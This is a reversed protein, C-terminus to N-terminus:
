LSKSTITLKVSFTNSEKLIEFTHKNQYVLNLRQKANKIGIGFGEETQHVKFDENYSNVCTFHITNEDCIIAITLESKKSPDIGYKFANEVFPILLGPSIIQDTVGKFTTTITPEVACRLKQIIIYDQLYNIENKLPIFDKHIDNQMYRLLNALKATSEATKTANESLATAYLTNLTNFLFHPNVQSKLLQLESEKVDLQIHFLRNNAKVKVRIYGYTFSLLMTILFFVILTIFNASLEKVRIFHSGYIVMTSYTILIFSTINFLLYKLINRKKIILPIFIFTNLYFVVSFIVTLYLSKIGYNLTNHNFLLLLCFSMFTIINVILEAYKMSFLEKREEKNISLIYYLLSLISFPIFTILSILLGSIVWQTGLFFDFPSSPTGDLHVTIISSRKAQFWIIIFAIVLISSITLALYKKLKKKKLLIPLFLFTHVYYAMIYFLTTFLDWLRVKESANSFITLSVKIFILLVVLHVLSKKINSAFYTQMKM